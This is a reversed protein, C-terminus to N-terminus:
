QSQGALYHVGYGFVNYQMISVASGSIIGTIYECEILDLIQGLFPVCDEFQSLWTLEQFEDLMIFIRQKNAKALYKPMVLALGCASSLGIWKDDIIRQMNTYYSTIDKSGINKCAEAIFELRPMEDRFSIGFYELYEKAFEWFVKFPFEKRALNATTESKVKEYGLIDNFIKLLNIYIPIVRYKEKNEL